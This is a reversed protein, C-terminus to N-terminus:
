DQQPVLLFNTMRGQDQATRKLADRIRAPYIPNVSHKNSTTIARTNPSNAPALRRILGLMDAKAEPQADGDLIDSVANEFRQKIESQTVNNPINHPGPRNHVIQGAYLRNGWQGVCAAGVEATEYYRQWFFHGPRKEHRTLLKTAIVVFGNVDNVVCREHKEFMRLNGTPSIVIVLANGDSTAFTQPVGELLDAMFVPLPSFQKVQPLWWQGWTVSVKPLLLDTSPVRQLAAQLETLNQPSIEKFPWTAGDLQAGPALAPLESFAIALMSSMKHRANAAPDRKDSKSSFLGGQAKTGIPPNEQSNALSIQGSTLLFLAAIVNNAFSRTKM